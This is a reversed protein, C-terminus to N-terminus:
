PLRSCWSRIKQRAIVNARLSWLELTDSIQKEVVLSSINWRKGQVSSIQVLEM